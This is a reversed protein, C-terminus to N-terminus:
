YESRNEWFMLKWVLLVKLDKKAYKTESNETEIDKKLKLQIKYNCM